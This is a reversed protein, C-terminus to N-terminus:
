RNLVGNAILAEKPHFYKYYHTRVVADTIYITSMAITKILQSVYMQVKLTVMGQMTVNLTVAEHSLPHM